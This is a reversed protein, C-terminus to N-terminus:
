GGGKEYKSDMHNAWAIWALPLIAITISGPHFDPTSTVLAFLLMIYFVGYYCFHNLMGKIRGKEKVLEYKKTMERGGGKRAM